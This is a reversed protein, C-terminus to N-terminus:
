DSAASLRDVSVPAASDRDVGYLFTDATFVYPFKWRTFISDNRFFCQRAAKEWSLLFNMLGNSSPRNPMRAVGSLVYPLHYASLSISCILKFSFSANLFPPPPHGVPYVLRVQHAIPDAQFRPLENRLMLGMGM